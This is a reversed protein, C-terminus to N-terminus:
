NTLKLQRQQGDIIVNLNIFSGTPESKYVLTGFFHEQKDKQKPDLESHVLRMVDDFFRYIQEKEWSYARQYPPIFFLATNPSLANFISTDSAKM